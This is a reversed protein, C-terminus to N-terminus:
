YAAVFAVLSDVGYRCLGPEMPARGYSQQVDTFDDTM